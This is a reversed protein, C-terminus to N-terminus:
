NAEKFGENLIFYLILIGTPLLAYIISYAGTLSCTIKSSDTFEGQTKLTFTINKQLARTCLPLCSQKIVDSLLQM